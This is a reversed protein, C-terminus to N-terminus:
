HYGDTDSQAVGAADAGFDGEFGEGGFGEGGIAADEDEAVEVVEAGEVLFEAELEREDGALGGGALDGHEIRQGRRQRGGERGAGGFGGAGGDGPELFGGGAAKAALEVGHDGRRDVLLGDDTGPFKKHSLGLEEGLQGAGVARRHHQQALVVAAAPQADGEGGRVDGDAKEGVPDGDGFDLEGDLEGGPSAGVQAEAAGADGDAAEIGV